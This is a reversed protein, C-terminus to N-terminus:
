KIYDTVLNPKKFQNSAQASQAAFHRQLRPIADVRVVLRLVLQHKAHVIDFIDVVQQSRDIKV